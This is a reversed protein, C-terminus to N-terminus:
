EAKEEDDQLYQEIEKNIRDPISKYIEIIAIKIANLFADVDAGGHSKIVIGNLGLLSAGNYQKPDLTHRVAKLVPMAILAAIRTFINKKFAAKLVNNVMSALGEATKLSVNGVFGDAVVVDVTGTYIDDGEIFGKYNLSSKEILSNAKKVTENGKMAESGINLLGVSPRAIEDVSQSLVSGMVAFQFLQEASCDINAGLDLMHTHGHTTPLSTCIAPRSIGSITKLVFKSTAMLAGTNGASVCADVTRDKVLNIAVRMSSDKKKKLAVAPSEDMNVVQSAHQISLRSNGSLNLQQLQPELLEQQGVLVIEIDKSFKLARQAALVTVAPGFDGGM